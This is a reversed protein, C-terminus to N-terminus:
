YEEFPNIKAEFFLYRIEGEGTPEVQSGKYSIARDTDTGIDCIGNVIAESGELAVAARFVAVREVTNAGQMDSFVTVRAKSGIDSLKTIITSIIEAESTLTKM